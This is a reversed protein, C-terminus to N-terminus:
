TGVSARRTAFSLAVKKMAAAIDQADDETYTNRLTIRGTTPLVREINPLHLSAYDRMVNGRNTNTAM